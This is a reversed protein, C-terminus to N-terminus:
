DSKEKVGWCAIVSIASYVACVITMEELNVIYLGRYL